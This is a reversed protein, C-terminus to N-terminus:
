EHPDIEYFTSKKPVFLVEVTGTPGNRHKAIIIEAKHPQDSNIASQKDNEVNKKQYYSERYLFLVLDADQEISGSDRLDSLLPRKDERKEVYRSLQSVCLVPIKLNRAIEKLKRTWLSVELNRNDFNRNGVPKLLQLYDIIVLKIPRKQAWNRLKLQIAYIDIGMSSDIFVNIKKLKLIFAEASNLDHEDNRSFNFNPINSRILRQAIQNESMELSFIIIDGQDEDNNLKLDNEMAIKLALATKGMSPRAALIILDGKQFGNTKKDLAAISTSCGVNYSNVMLKKWHKIESSVVNHISQLNKQDRFVFPELSNIGSNILKWLQASNNGKDLIQNWKKIQTAIQFRTSNEQISAMYRNLFEPSTYNQVIESLYIIGGAEDLKDRNKLDDILITLDFPKQNTNVLDSITQFIVKHRKDLFDISKLKILAENRIKPANILIALFKTEITLDDSNLITLKDEKM